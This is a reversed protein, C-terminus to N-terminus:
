IEDLCVGFSSFGIVVITRFPRKIKTAITVVIAVAVVAFLPSNGAIIAALLVAASTMLWSTIGFM